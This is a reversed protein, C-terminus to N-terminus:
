STRSGRRAQRALLWDLLRPCLRNIWLALKAELTIIVENRRGRMARVIQRACRDASMRRRRWQIKGQKKEILHTDFETEIGGPCVVLVHLGHRDEEARLAESWGVM